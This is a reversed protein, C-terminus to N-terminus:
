FRILTNRKKIKNKLKLNCYINKLTGMNPREYSQTSLRSRNDLLM